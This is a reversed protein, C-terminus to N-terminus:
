LLFLFVQLCAFQPVSCIGRTVNGKLLDVGHRAVYANGTCAESNITAELMSEAMVARKEMAALEQTAKEAM